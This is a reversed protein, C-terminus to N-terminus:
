GAKPGPSIVRALRRLGRAAFRRGRVATSAPAAV